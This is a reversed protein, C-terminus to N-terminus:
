KFQGPCSVTPSPTCRRLLPWPDGVKVTADKTEVVYSGGAPTRVTLVARVNSARLVLVGGVIKSRTIECVEGAGDRLVLTSRGGIMEDVTYQCRLAVGIVRDPEPPVGKTESGFGLVFITPSLLLIAGVLHPSYKQRRSASGDVATRHAGWKSTLWWGYAVAAIVAVTSLVALMGDYTNGVLAAVALPVFGSVSILGLVVALRVLLRLLPPWDSGPPNVAEGAM